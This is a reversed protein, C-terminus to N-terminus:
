RYRVLRIKVMHLQKTQIKETNTKCNSGWAVIAYSNCPYILNYYYLQIEEPNGQNLEEAAGTFLQIVQVLSLLVMSRASRISSKVIKANQVLHVFCLHSIKVSRVLLYTIYVLVVCDLLTPHVRRLTAQNYKALKM